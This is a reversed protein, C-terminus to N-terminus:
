LAVEGGRGDDYKQCAELFTQDDLIELLLCIAHAENVVDGDPELYRALVSQAQEVAGKYPNNM